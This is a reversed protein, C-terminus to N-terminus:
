FKYLLAEEGCTEKNPCSDCDKWIKEPLLEKNIIEFGNKKFFDPSYTLTFIRLNSSNASTSLNKVLKKVLKSGINQKKFSEKVALSRIEKLLPGYDYFSIIGIVQQEKKAVLFNHLNKKIEDKNRQLILNKKAYYVIISSIENIDNMNAPVIEFPM